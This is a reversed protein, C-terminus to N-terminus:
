PPFLADLKRAFETLLEERLEVATKEILPGYLENEEKLSKAAPRPITRSRQFSMSYIPGREKHYVVMTLESKVRVPMFMIRTLSHDVLITVATDVSHLQLFRQLLRAEEESSVVPLLDPNSYFKAQLPFSGARVMESTLIKEQPLLELHRSLLEELRARLIATQDPHIRLMWRRNQSFSVAVNRELFTFFATTDFPELSKVPQRVLPTHIPAFCSGLALLILGSHILNRYDM